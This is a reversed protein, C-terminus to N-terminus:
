VGQLEFVRTGPDAASIEEMTLIPLIININKKKKKEIITNNHKTNNHRSHGKNEKGKNQKMNTKNSKEM